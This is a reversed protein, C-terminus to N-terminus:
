HKTSISEIKILVYEITFMRSYQLRPLGLNTSLTLNKRCSPWRTYSLQEELCVIGSQSYASRARLLAEKCMWIPSEFLASDQFSNNKKIPIQFIFNKKKVMYDVYTFRNKETMEFYVFKFNWCLTTVPKLIIKDFNSHFINM